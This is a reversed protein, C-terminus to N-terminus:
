ANMVQPSEQGAEFETSLQDPTLYEVDSQQWGRVNDPGQDEPMAAIRRDRRAELARIADEYQPILDVLEALSSVFKTSDVLAGFEDRLTEVQVGWASARLKALESNRQATNRTQMREAHSQASM